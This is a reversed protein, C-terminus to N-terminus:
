MRQAHTMAEGLLSLLGEDSCKQLYKNLTYVHMQHVILSTVDKCFIAVDILLIQCVILQKVIRQGYVQYRYENECIEISYHESWFFASVCM